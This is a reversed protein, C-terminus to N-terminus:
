IGEDTLIRRQRVVDALSLIRRAESRLAEGGRDTLEFIRKRAEDSALERVSGQRLLRDLTGYVTGPGMAVGSQSSERASQMIAYGHLPGQALALLVHFVAPTLPKAM